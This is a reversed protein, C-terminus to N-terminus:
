FGGSIYTFRSAFQGLLATKSNWSVLVVLILLM